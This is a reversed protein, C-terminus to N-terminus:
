KASGAFFGKTIRLLSTRLRLLDKAGSRTDMICLNVILISLFSARLMDPKPLHCAGQEKNFFGTWFLISFFGLISHSIVVRDAGFINVWSKTRLKKAWNVKEKTEYRRMGVM